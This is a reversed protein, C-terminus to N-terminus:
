ATAKKSMIQDAVMVLPSAIYISSYTGVIVGIGLTFAFDKIVGGALFYMAAVALLTTLSTLITRSLVDNISRNVVFRFNEDRYVHINERIRDYTVITDNLSYGIITLIAAMTQINVEHGTVAFVGLTIMADHFLSIVAGPAYKYDFRLGIYILIMLLSYFAALISNRKLESGVQPGVSDVRRVAPEEQPFEKALSATVGSIMENIMTNTEKESLGQKNEVRILFENTEQLAQVSANKSGINEAFARVRSTPVQQNFQVQIETGGSFDIGYNFGYVGIAVASAVMAVLSVMAFLPAKGMFDYRGPDEGKPKTAKDLGKNENKKGM